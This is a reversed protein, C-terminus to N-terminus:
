VTIRQYLSYVRHQLRFTRAYKMNMILLCHTLYENWGSLSRGDRFPPDFAAPNPLGPRGPAWPFVSAHGAKKIYVHDAAYCFDLWKLVQM